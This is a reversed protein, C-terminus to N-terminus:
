RVSCEQCAIISDADTKSHFTLVNTVQTEEIRLCKADYVAEDDTGLLKVDLSRSGGASVHVLIFATSDSESDTQRPLRLIRPLATPTM